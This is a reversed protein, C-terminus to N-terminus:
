QAAFIKLYTVTYKMLDRWGEVAIAENAIHWNIGYGLGTQSVPKGLPAMAFLNEPGVGPRSPWVQIEVHHLKAAETAATLIPSDTPVNLAPYGGEDDIVEIDTFGHADLHRRLLAALKDPPINPALRFDLTASVDMPMISFDKSGTIATATMMSDLIYSGLLDKGSQGNKWAPIGITKRLTEFDLTNKLVDLDRAQSADYVYPQVGDITLLENKNM